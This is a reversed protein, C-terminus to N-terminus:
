MVAIESAVNLIIFFFLASGERGLDYGDRDEPDRDEKGYTRSGCGPEHVANKQDNSDAYGDM